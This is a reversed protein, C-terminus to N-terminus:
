NLQELFVGFSHCQTLALTVKDNRKIMTVPAGKISFSRRIRVPELHLRALRRWGAHRDLDRFSRCPPAMVKWGLM